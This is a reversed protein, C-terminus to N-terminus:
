FGAVDDLDLGVADAHQAIAHDVFNQLVRLPSQVL